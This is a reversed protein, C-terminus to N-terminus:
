MTGNNSPESTAGVLEPSSDEIPPISSSAMEHHPRLERHTLIDRASDVGDRCAQQVTEPPEHQPTEEQRMYLTQTPFAFEVKLRKALRLIDLFLQERAEIEEGYDNTVFFVYLLINLSASALDHLRVHYFDKRTLPHNRVIELIGETFAVIKEPPTDYTISLMVKLRRFQRRGMNDVPSTIFQSNPVTILSNYFTRVRTSRMGVHEVRGEIDKTIIWDDLRFPRELLIMISGFVNEVTDKSALALAVGGIGLAALVRTSDQGCEEAVRFMAFIVLIIKILRGILPLLLNEGMGPKHLRRKELRHTVVDVALCLLWAIVVIVVIDRAFEMVALFAAPMCLLDFGTYCFWVLFALQVPLIFKYEVKRRGTNEERVIVHRMALRLVRHLVVWGLLAGLIVVGAGLWKWIPLGGVMRDLSPQHRHVYDSALIDFPLYQDVPEVGPALPLDRYMAYMAPITEVTKATFKWAKLETKPDETVAM